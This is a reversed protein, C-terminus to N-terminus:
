VLASPLSNLFRFKLGKGFILRTRQKEFSLDFLDLYWLPALNGQVCWPLTQVGKEVTQCVRPMTKGRSEIKHCQWSQSVVVRQVSGLGSSKWVCVVFSQRPLLDQVTIMGLNAFIKLRHASSSPCFCFAMHEIAQRVPLARVPRPLTRGARPRGAKRAQTTGEGIFAELPRLRQCKCVGLRARALSWRLEGHFALVAARWRQGLETM